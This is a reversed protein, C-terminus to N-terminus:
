QYGPHRGAVDEWMISEPEAIRSHCTLALLCESSTQAPGLTAVTILSLRSGVAQSLYVPQTQSAVPEFELVESIIMPKSFNASYKEIKIFLVQFIDVCLLNTDPISVDRGTIGLVERSASLSQQM